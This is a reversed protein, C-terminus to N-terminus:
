RLLGSAGRLQVEAQESIRTVIVSASDVAEILDVAESAWVMATDYNGAGAAAQFATREVDAVKALEDEHGHWRKM